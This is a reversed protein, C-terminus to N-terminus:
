ADGWFHKSERVVSTVWTQAMRCPWHVRGGMVYVGYSTHDHGFALALSGPLDTCLAGWSCVCCACALANGVDILKGNGHWEWCLYWRTEIINDVVVVFRMEWVCVCVCVYIYLYIKWAQSECECDEFLVIWVFVVIDNMVICIYIVDREDFCLKEQFVLM